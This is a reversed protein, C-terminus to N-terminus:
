AAAVRYVSLHATLNNAAGSSQLVRVIITNTPALIRGTSVTARSDYVAFAASDTNGGSIVQLVNSTGAGATSFIASATILYLGGQGTPITITTTTPTAFADSDADETDWSIDTLTANAISQNGTRRWVGGCANTIANMQAATLANGVVFPATYHPM